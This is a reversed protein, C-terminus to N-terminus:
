HSYPHYDKRLKGPAPGILPPLKGGEALIKMNKLGWMFRETRRAKVQERFADNAFVSDDYFVTYLIETTKATLPRAELTAHYFEFKRDTRPPMAYTYSYQSKGVIPEPGASRVTGYDNDKGVIIYTPQQMFKGFDVYAGIRKWVVAVPRDVVISVPIVVYHPHGAVPKLVEARLKNIDVSPSNQTAAMSVSTVTSLVTAVLVLSCKFRNKM